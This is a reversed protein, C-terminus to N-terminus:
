RALAEIAARDYRLLQWDGLVAGGTARYFDQASENWALVVGEIRHCGRGLAEKAIAQMMARGLGARRRAPDVFVDEIYLTPRALFSSYTEVLIAYAAVIGRDEGVLLTFRPRPGFADALLRERADKAPPELREYRALAEVLALFAPGDAERARRVIPAM